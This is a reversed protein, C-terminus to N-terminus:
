KNIPSDKDQSYSFISFGRRTHKSAVPNFHEHQTLHLNVAAGSRSFADHIIMFNGIINQDICWKLAELRRLAPKNSLPFGASSDILIADYKQIPIDNWTTTILTLNPITNQLPKLVPEFSEMIVYPDPKLIEYISKSTIGGGFELFSKIPLKPLQQELWQMDITPPSLKGRTITEM